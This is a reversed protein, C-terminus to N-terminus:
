CNCGTMSVTQCASGPPMPHGRVHSIINHILSANVM